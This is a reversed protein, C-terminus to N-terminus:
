ARVIPEGPEFTLETASLAKGVSQAIYTATTPITTTIGGATTSLYYIAGPTLGSLGTITGDFYVTANQGSTVASIVFGDAQKAIGGTADAKRATIVGANNYLNVLDGANLNEGAVAVRTDAGIGVPMVSIDLLGDGGLAVIKGADTVGTSTTTAQKETLGSTGLYVFKDAM